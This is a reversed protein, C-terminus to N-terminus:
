ARVAAIEHQVAEVLEGVRTCSQFREVSLMVGYTEDLRVMVELIALSDWGPLDALLESDRLIERSNGTIEALSTLLEETTVATVQQM